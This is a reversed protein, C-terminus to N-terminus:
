QIILAEDVWVTVEEYMPLLGDVPINLQRSLPIIGEWDLKSLATAFQLYPTMETHEGSITELITESLPLQTVIASMPRKLLSDILSFLGVLFYESFNKKYNLRAIKECVKARFLSAYMLEQFVDKNRNVDSERMALLYIWRRLETLGLLLIAQKISRVKTKSRRSSGNILKLLRYSLSIEREINNALVDINAEDDRLLSIIQFYQFLNAPIDTATLIQPKEFFYGQFLFYGSEKAMEYQERTEVKEALLKIHPFKMKITNEIEVRENEDTHLFDIKIYDIYRFLEDYILVEKNMVFDDLAIKNGANKLQKLREILAITIPIDELIEIVIQEEEIIDLSEQMILNETFNIFLPKGNAIEKIGISLFSNIILEVTAKDADINPFQNTYNNRYLLEYAVIKEHKNFIPQRGVFVEM